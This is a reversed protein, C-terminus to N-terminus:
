LGFLGPDSKCIPVFASYDVLPEANPVCGKGVVLSLLILLAAVLTLFSVGELAGLLGNPGPPLGSGTTAKSLVSAAVLGVVALYSIGELAGVLGFPGAPLGGGTTAVLYLSTWVVPQAIAGLGIAATVFSGAKTSPPEVSSAVICRRLAPRLTSSAQTNAVSLQLATASYVMLTLM